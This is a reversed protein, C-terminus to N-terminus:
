TIPASEQAEEAEVATGDRLASIQNDLITGLGDLFGVIVDLQDNDYHSVLQALQATLPAFLALVDDQRATTPRLEWRRRDDPDRVREVFGAAELRDAVGTIAGGTLGILDALNKATLPAEAARLLDLCKLDTVSLGLKAALHHHFLM